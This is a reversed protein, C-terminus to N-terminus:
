PTLRFAWGGLQWRGERRTADCTFYKRVPAGFANASDVYGYVTYSGPRTKHEDFSSFTYSATSPSLLQPNIEDRIAMSIERSDATLSLYVAIGACIIALALLFTPLRKRFSMESHAHRM